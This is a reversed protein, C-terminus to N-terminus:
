VQLILPSFPFREERSRVEYRDVRYTIFLAKWSGVTSQELAYKQLMRIVFIGMIVLWPFPFSVIAANTGFYHCGWYLPPDGDNVLAYGEPVQFEGGSLGM